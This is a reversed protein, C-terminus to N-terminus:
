EARQRWAAHAHAHAHPEGGQLKLHTLSKVSLSITPREGIDTSWDSSPGAPAAHLFRGMPLFPVDLQTEPDIHKRLDHSNPDFWHSIDTGAAQIIPQVLNGSNQEVLETLDYVQVCRKAQPSRPLSDPELAPPSCRAKNFFSVWLDDARDHMGVESPTYYRTRKNERQNKGRIRAQIAIASQSQSEAKKRSTRGRVHASITSGAKKQENVKQRDKKGRIGAGIRALALDEENAGM